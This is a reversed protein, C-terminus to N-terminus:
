TYWLHSDPHIPVFHDDAKSKHEEVSTKRASSSGASQDSDDEESSYHPRRILDKVFSRSPSVPLTYRKSRELEYVRSSIDLSCARYNKEDVPPM